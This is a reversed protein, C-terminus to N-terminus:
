QVFAIFYSRRIRTQYTVINSMGLLENVYSSYYYYYILSCFYNIMLACFLYGKVTSSYSAFLLTHPIGQSESVVFSTTLQSLSRPTAFLSQDASTRIPFGGYNFVVSGAQRSSLGPFQFM